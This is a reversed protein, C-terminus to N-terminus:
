SGSVTVTTAAEAYNGQWDSVLYRVVYTGPTTTVPNTVQVKTTLDHTCTGTLWTGEAATCATSDAQNGAKTVLITIAKSIVDQGYGRQELNKRLLEEKVPKNHLSELNGLYTYHLDNILWGKVRNQLKRESDVSMQM